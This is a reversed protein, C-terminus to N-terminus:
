PGSQYASGAWHWTLTTHIDPCCNPVSLSSFGNVAASLNPGSVTFGSAQYRSSVAILTQALHPALPSAAENYVLLAVPPTGAGNNCEVMVVAVKRGHAPQPYAVQVVRYGVRGQLTTGCSFPYIISAWGV